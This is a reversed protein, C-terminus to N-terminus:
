PMPKASSSEVPIMLKEDRQYVVACWSGCKMVGARKAASACICSWEHPQVM